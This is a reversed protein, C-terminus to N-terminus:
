MYGFERALADVEPLFGRCDRSETDFANLNLEPLGFTQPHQGLMTAILSTYTRGPAVIFLPAAM